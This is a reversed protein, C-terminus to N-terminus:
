APKRLVVMSQHYFAYPEISVIEFYRGWEQRIRAASQFVNVFEMRLGPADIIVLDASRAKAIDEQELGFMARMEDNQELFRWTHEDHVTFLGVGGPKLIRRLEMLWADALLPVHTFVSIAFIADFARDEFPLHPFASCTLFRFPPSLNEKAWEISPGDQDVGWFDCVRAEDAFHRLVRCDRCGWDMVSVGDLRIGLQSFFRRLTLADQRGTALHRDLSEYYLDEVPPLSLPEDASRTPRQLRSISLRTFRRPKALPVVTDRRPATFLGSIIAQADLSETVRDHLYKALDAKATAPSVRRLWKTATHGNM